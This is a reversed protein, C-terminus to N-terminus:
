SYLNSGMEGMEMASFQDTVATLDALDEFDITVSRANNTAVFFVFSLVWFILFYKKRRTSM